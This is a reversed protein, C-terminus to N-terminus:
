HTDMYSWLDCEASAVAAMLRNLVVCLAYLGRPGTASIESSAFCGSSIVLACDPRRGEESSQLRGQLGALTTYGEYGIAVCPIRTAMPRGFSVRIERASATAKWYRRLRKVRATTEEVQAWQKSLDSKVELVAAVSEALLLCPESAPMPFSPLFPYQVAIDIQGSVAGSSDTIAGTSFRYHSPFV